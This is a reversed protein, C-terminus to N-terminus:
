YTCLNFVVVSVIINVTTYSYLYLKGSRIKEIVVLHKVFSDSKWSVKFLSGYGLAVDKIKFPCPSKEDGTKRVLWCM